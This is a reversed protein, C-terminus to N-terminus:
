STCANGESCFVYWIVMEAKEGFARVEGDIIAERCPLEALAGAIPAMTKTYDRGNRTTLRATGGVIRAV